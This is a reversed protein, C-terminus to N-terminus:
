VKQFTAIWWSPLPIKNILSIIVLLTFALLILTALLDKWNPILQRYHTRKSYPEYGRSTMADALDNAKNFSSVFLPILLVIFARIKDKFNGNKFDVGRSSQAKMIRGSEEMLTPIFRLAISIIMTIIETPIKILKLPYLLDNIAKTLLIPKTSVTLITTILIVGYIRLFIAFTRHISFLNLQFVYNVDNKPAFYVVNIFLKGRHIIYADPRLDSPLPVYNHADYYMVAGKVTLMNIILLFIAIYLPLKLKKFVSKISKTTICYLVMSFLILIGLTIYHPSIFFLVIFLINALFKLRPDLKHIPTDLNIYRGIITKSM